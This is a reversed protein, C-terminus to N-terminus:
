NDLKHRDRQSILPKLFCLSFEEWEWKFMTGWMMTEAIEVRVTHVGIFPLFQSQAQPFVSDFFLFFSPLFWRRISLTGTLPLLCVSVVLMYRKLLVPSGIIANAISMEIRVKEKGELVFM